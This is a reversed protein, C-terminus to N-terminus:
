LKPPTTGAMRPRASKVTRKTKENAPKLCVAPLTASDMEGAGDFFSCTVQENPEAGRVDSVTMSPGGSKLQVVDGKNM